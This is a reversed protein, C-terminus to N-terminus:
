FMQTLISTHMNKYSFCILEGVFQPSYSWSQPAFGGFVAGNTDEIILVSPGQDVIRGMLTSFSEGHIQSSFLFRWKSRCDMPLNSNIFLM